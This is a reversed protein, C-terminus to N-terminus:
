FCVKEGRLLKLVLYRAGVDEIGNVLESEMFNRPDIEVAFSQVNEDMKRNTPVELVYFCKTHECLLQRLDSARKLGITETGEVAVLERDVRIFPKNDIPSSNFDLDVPEYIIEYNRFISGLLKEIDEILALQGLVNYFVFQADQYSKSLRLLFNVKCQEIQNQFKSFDKFDDYLKLNNVEVTVHM